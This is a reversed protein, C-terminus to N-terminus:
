LKCSLSKSLLTSANLLLFPLLKLSGSELGLHAVGIAVHLDKCLTSQTNKGKQHFFQINVSCNRNGINSNHLRTM